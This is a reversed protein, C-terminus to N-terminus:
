VTESLLARKLFPGMMHLRKMSGEIWDGVKEALKPVEEDIAVADMMEETSIGEKKLGEIYHWLGTVQLWNAIRAAVLEGGGEKEKAVKAREHRELKEAFLVSLEERGGENGRGGQASDQEMGGSRVGAGVNRDM